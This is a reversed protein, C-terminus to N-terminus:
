QKITQEITVSMNTRLSENGKVVVSEGASLGDSIVVSGDFQLGTKVLRETVTITETAQNIVWVVIRGDPHRILADRPITIGQQAQQIRLNATASIGPALSITHDKLHARLTFTRTQTDTIPLIWDIVGAFTQHPFTSLQIQIDAAQTLKAQVSQPVQFDIKLEDMATLEVVTDGPRVWEGVATQKQSIIGDFPATITYRRLKAELQQQQIQIRKLDAQDTRVESALQKIQNSAIAQQKSLKQADALRRKADALAETAKETDAKAAALALNDLEDDLQLINDGAKVRKGLDVSLAKVQGSVQVSLKAINPSVVSGSLHINEIIPAQEAQVVIVKPTKKKALTNSPLFLLAFAILSFITLVWRTHDCSHGNTTTQYSLHRYRM